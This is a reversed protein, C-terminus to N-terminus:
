AIHLELDRGLSARPRCGRQRGWCQDVLFLCRLQASQVPHAVAVDFASLSFTERTFTSLILDETYNRHNLARSRSIGLSYRASMRVNVNYTKADARRLALVRLRPSAGICGGAAAQQAEGSMRLRWECSNRTARLINNQQGNAYDNDGEPTVIIVSQDRCFSYRYTFIRCPTRGPISWSERLMRITFCRVGSQALGILSGQLRASVKAISKRGRLRAGM